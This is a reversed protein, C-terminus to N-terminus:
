LDAGRAGQLSVRISHDGRGRDESPILIPGVEKAYPKRGPEVVLINITDSNDM